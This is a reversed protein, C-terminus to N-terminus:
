VLGALAFKSEIIDSDFPKMIYEDAGAALAEIIREVDRVSTCFVVTPKDGEPMERLNKVFDFGDMIPMAWDVLIAHPMEMGCKDLADQGNIAEVTEFGLDKVIRGAVRRIMRSDDVILCTKMASPDMLAHLQERLGQESDATINPKATPAKAPDIAVRLATTGAMIHLQEGALNIDIHGVRDDTLSQRIIQSLASGLRERLENARLETLSRDGMDYSLSITRQVSRAVSLADAIVERMMADMTVVPSDDVPATKPDSKNQTKPMDVPKPTPLVPVFGEKDKTDRRPKKVFPVIDAATIDSVLTLVDSQGLVDSEISVSDPKVTELTVPSRMLRSLMDADSPEAKPLLENLTARAADWKDERTLIPAIEETELLEGLGRAYETVLSGLNNIRGSLTVDDEHHLASLVNQASSYINRARLRKAGRQLTTMMDIVVASDRAARPDDMKAILALGDAATRTFKQAFNLDDGM